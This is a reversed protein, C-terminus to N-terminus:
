FGQIIAAVDMGPPVTGVMFRHQQSLPSVGDEPDNYQTADIQIAELQSLVLGEVEFATKLAFMKTEAAVVADQDINFSEIGKGVYEDVNDTIKTRLPQTRLPRPTFSDNFYRNLVNLFTISQAMVGSAILEKMLTQTLPSSSNLKNSRGLVTNISAATGIIGASMATTEAINIANTVEQSAMLTSNGVDSANAYSLSTRLPEVLSSGLSSRIPYDDVGIASLYTHNTVFLQFTMPIHYPLEANDEADAGLMYGEVVIDDWHLYIRANLEVLKTGRLYNEYNYWFETRWNFDLTNFLLGQVTLIRPREGFFFIYTDGFTEMIQAKEQRSDRLSQIIFNSYSTTSTKRSTKIKSPIKSGAPTLNGSSAAISGGSDVLPIEDGSATIVKITAYTDDKIEIGRFPRRINEASQSTLAGQYTLNEAFADTRTEIIAAM